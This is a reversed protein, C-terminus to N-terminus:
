RGRGAVRGRDTISACSSSKRWKRSLRRRFATIAGTRHYAFTLTLESPFFTGPRSPLMCVDDHCHELDAEMGRLRPV